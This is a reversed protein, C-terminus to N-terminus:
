EKFDGRIGLADIKKNQLSTLSTTVLFKTCPLAKVFQYDPFPNIKLDLHLEDLFRISPMIVETPIKHNGIVVDWTYLWLDAIINRTSEPSFYGSLGASLHEFFPDFVASDMSRTRFITEDLDLILTLDKM